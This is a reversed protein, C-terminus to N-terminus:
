TSRVKLRREIVDSGFSPHLEGFANVMFGGKIDTMNRIM